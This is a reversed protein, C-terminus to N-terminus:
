PTDTGTKWIAYDHLEAGIMMRLGFNYCFGVSLAPCAFSRSM